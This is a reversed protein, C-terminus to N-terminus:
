ISLEGNEFCVPDDIFTLIRLKNLLGINDQFNVKKVNSFQNLIEKQEPKYDERWQKKNNKNLSYEPDLAVEGITM